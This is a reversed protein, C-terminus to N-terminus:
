DEYIVEEGLTRDSMVVNNKTVKMVKLGHKKAMDHATKVAEKDHDANILMKGKWEGTEPCSLHVTHTHMTHGEEIGEEMAKKRITAFYVAKGKEPGYQSIMKSKMDSSDYKAKLQKEKAKEDSTMHHTAEDVKSSNMQKVGFEASDKAEQRDEKKGNGSHYSVPGEGMHKGDKYYHVQHEEWDPDYYVKATYTGEGHKSILKKGSTLSEEDLNESESVPAFVNQAINIKESQLADSIKSKLITDIETSIENAKNNNTFEIVRKLYDKM